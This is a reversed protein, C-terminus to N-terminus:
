EHNHIKASALFDDHQSSLLVLAFSILSWFQGIKYGIWVVKPFKKYFLTDFLISFLGKWFHKRIGKHKWYHTNTVCYWDGKKLCEKCLGIGTTIDTHAAKLPVVFYLTKWHKHLQEALFLLLLLFKDELTRQWKWNNTFCCCCCCCCCCM